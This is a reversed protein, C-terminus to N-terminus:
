LTLFHISKWKFVIAYTLTKPAETIHGGAVFRAKRQFDKMNIYLIYIYLWIDQYNSPASQGGDTLKFSKRVTEM